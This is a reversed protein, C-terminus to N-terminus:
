RKWINRSINVCAAFKKTMNIFIMIEAVVFNNKLHFKTWAIFNGKRTCRREPVEKKDPGLKESGQVNEILQVKIERAIEFRERRFTEM